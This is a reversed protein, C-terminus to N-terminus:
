PLETELDGSLFALKTPCDLALHYDGSLLLTDGIEGILFVFLLVLFIAPVALKVLYFRADTLSSITSCSIPDVAEL